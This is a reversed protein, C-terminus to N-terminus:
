FLLLGAGILGVVWLSTLVIMGGRKLRLFPEAYLEKWLMPRRRVRPLRRPKFFVVFARRAGQSAQWRSLLRLSLLSAVVGIVAVVRHFIAYATMTQWSGPGLMGAGRLDSRLKDLALYPNGACLWEVPAPISKPDSLRELLLTATFYLIIEVY